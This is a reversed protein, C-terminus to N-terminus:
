TLDPVSVTVEGFLLATVPVDLAGAIAVLDDVDVHRQGNEIKTLGYAAIPWGIEALRASLAYTSMGRWHRMERANAAVKQGAAGLVKAKGAM